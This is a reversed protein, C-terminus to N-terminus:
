ALSGFLRTSYSTWCAAAASSDQGSDTLAAIRDQVDQASDASTVGPVGATDLCEALEAFVVERDAGGLAVQDQYALEAEMLGYQQECAVLDQQRNPSPGDGGGSGSFTFGYTVGDTRKTVDDVDYGKDVMCAHVARVISVYQAETIDGGAYSVAPAPEADDAPGCAATLACAVVLALVAGARRATARPRRPASRTTSTLV